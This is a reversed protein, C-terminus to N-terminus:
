HEVKFRWKSNPQESNIKFVLKSVGNLPVTATQMGNTATMETKFLQKGNQDEVILQDPEKYFEYSLKLATEKGTLSLEKTSSGTGSYDKVIKVKETKSKLSEAKAYYINDESSYMLRIEGDVVQVRSYWNGGQSGSFSKEDSFFLFNEFLIECGVSDHKWEGHRDFVNGNSALHQYKYTGDAYIFISDKSSSFGNHSYYYSGVLMKSDPCSSCGTIGMTCSIFFIFLFRMDKKM